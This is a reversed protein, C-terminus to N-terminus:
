AEAKREIPLRHYGYRGIQGITRKTESRMLSRSVANPDQYGSPLTVQAWADGASVVGGVGVVVLAAVIGRRFIERTLRM